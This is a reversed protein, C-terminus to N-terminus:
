NTYLENLDLQHGYITKFDFMKGCVTVEIKKPIIFCNLNFDPIEPCGELLSENQPIEVKRTSLSSILINNKYHKAVLFYRPKAPNGNNFYFPDFWFRQSILNSLLKNRLCLM